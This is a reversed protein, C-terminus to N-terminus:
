IIIKKHAFNKKSFLFFMSNSWSNEHGCTAYSYFVNELYGNDTNFYSSKTNKVDSCATADIYCWKNACYDPPKEFSLFFIDFEQPFRKLLIKLCLKNNETERFVSIFCKQYKASPSKQHLLPPSPDLIKGDGFCQKLTLLFVIQSWFTVLTKLSFFFYFLFFTQVINEGLNKTWSTVLSQLLFIKQKKMQPFLFQQRGWKRGSEGLLIGLLITKNVLM